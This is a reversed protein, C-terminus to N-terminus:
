QRLGRIRSKLPIQVTSKGQSKDKEIEKCEAETVTLYYGISVLLLTMFAKYYRHYDKFDTLSMTLDCNLKKRIMM